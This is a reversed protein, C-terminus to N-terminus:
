LPSRDNSVCLPSRYSLHSRWLHLLRSLFLLYRIHSQLISFPSRDSSITSVLRVFRSLSLSLQNLNPCCQVNRIAVFGPM